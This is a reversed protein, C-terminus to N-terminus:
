GSIVPFNYMHMDLEDLYVNNAYQLMDNIDDSFINLFLGQIVWAKLFNFKGGENGQLLKTEFEPGNKAVFSATKDIIAKLLLLEEEWQSGYKWIGKNESTTEM